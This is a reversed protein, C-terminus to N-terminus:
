ALARTLASAMAEIAEPGANLCDVRRFRLDIKTATKKMEVDIDYLTEVNDAVFGIPAILVTKYGAAKIEILAEGATPKLWEGGSRGESQWALRWDSVGAAAATLGVTEKVQHEYPDGNDELSKPLSHAMFLVAPEDGECAKLETQLGAAFGSILSPEAYWSEVKIVPAKNGAESLAIQAEALYEGTSRQSFYPTLAMIVVRDPQGAVLRRAVDAIYPCWYRMGLYVGADLGRTRLAEQLRRAQEESIALFPSSGGIKRYKDVAAALREPPLTTGTVKQVFPEVDELCDPGGFGVLLVALKGRAERRM